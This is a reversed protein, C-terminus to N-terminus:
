QHRTDKNLIEKIKREEWEDGFFSNFYFTKIAIFVLGIGWFFAVWLIWNSVENNNWYSWMSFFLIFVTYKFVKVYFKKIQTVRDKARIYRDEKSINEM